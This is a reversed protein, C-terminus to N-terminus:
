QQREILSCHLLDTTITQGDPLHANYSVAVWKDHPLSPLPEFDNIPSPYPIPQLLLRSDDSVLLTDIVLEVTMGPGIALPGDFSSSVSQPIDDYAVQVDHPEGTREVTYYRLAGIGALEFSSEIAVQGVTVSTTLGIAATGLGGVNSLLLITRCISREGDAKSTGSDVAFPRILASAQREVHRNAERAVIIAAIAVGLTVAWGLVSIVDKRTIDMTISERESLETPM